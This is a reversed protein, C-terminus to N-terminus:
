DYKSYLTQQNPLTYGQTKSLTVFATGGSGSLTCAINAQNNATDTFGWQQNLTWNDNGYLVMTTTSNRAITLSDTGGLSWLIGAVNVNANAYGLFSEDATKLDVDLDITATGSGVLKVVATQPTKKLVTKTVAM